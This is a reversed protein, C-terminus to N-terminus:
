AHNYFMVRSQWESYEQQRAATKIQPKEKKSCNQLSCEAKISFCAHFVIIGHHDDKMQSLGPNSVTYLANSRCGPDPFFM